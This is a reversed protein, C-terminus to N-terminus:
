LKLSTKDACIIKDQWADVVFAKLGVNKNTNYYPFVIPANDYCHTLM